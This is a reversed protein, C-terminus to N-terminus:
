INFFKLILEYYLTGILLNIKNSQIMKNLLTMKVKVLIM